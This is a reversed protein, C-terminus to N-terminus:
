DERTGILEIRHELDIGFEMANIGISETDRIDDLRDPADNEDDGERLPIFYDFTERVIATKSM